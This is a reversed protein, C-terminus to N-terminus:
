RPGTARLADDLLSAVLADPTVGREGATAQVLGVLSQPLKVAFPVLGAARDADRRARRDMGAPDAPAGRGAVSAAHKMQHAVRLGARKELEAKKMTM